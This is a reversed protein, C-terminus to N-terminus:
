DDDGRLERLMATNHHMSKLAGVGSALEAIAYLEKWSAGASRATDAYHKAMEMGSALMMGFVLLQTTKKDFINNHFAPVKYKSSHEELEIDTHGLSELNATDPPVDVLEGAPADVDVPLKRNQSETEDKV